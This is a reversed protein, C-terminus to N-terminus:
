ASPRAQRLLVRRQHFLGSSSGLGQLILRAPQEVAHRLELDRTSRRCGAFCLPTLTRRARYGSRLHQALGLRLRSGDWHALGCARIALPALESRLERAVRRSGSPSTQTAHAPGRAEVLDTYRRRLRRYSEYRRAPVRRGRVAAIVACAPEQMHRCDQFRCDSRSGTSKRFASRRRTSSNSPPRSIACARRISSRAAPTSRSVRALRHDHSPRGGRARTDGTEIEAQPLLASM